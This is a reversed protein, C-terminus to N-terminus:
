TRRSSQATDPSRGQPCLHLHPCRPPGDWSGRHAGPSSQALKHLAPYARAAGPRREPEWWFTVASSLKQMNITM